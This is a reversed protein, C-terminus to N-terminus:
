HAFIQKRAEENFKQCQNILEPAPYDMGRALLDHRVKNIIEGDGKTEIHLNVLGRAYAEAIPGKFALKEAAWLGFLWDRRSQIRFRVEQDYAFKCEFDAEPRKFAELM